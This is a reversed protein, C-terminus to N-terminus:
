PQPEETQNDNDAPPQRRRQTKDNARQKQQQRAAAKRRYGEVKHLEFITSHHVFRDIAAVTMGPDPFVNCLCEFSARCSTVPM